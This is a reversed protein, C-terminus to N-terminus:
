PRRGHTKAYDVVNGSIMEAGHNEGELWADVWEPRFRLCRRGGVRAARLRGRKLTAASVSARAAALSTTLWTLGLRVGVPEEVLGNSSDDNVYARHPGM